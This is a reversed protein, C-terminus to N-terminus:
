ASKEKWLLAFYIVGGILGCVLCVIHLMGTSVIQLFMNSETLPYFPRVDSHMVSDLFVHSYSGFFASFFVVNWSIKLKKGPNLGIVWLGFESLWKGSVAAVVTLISAGLYTHSFGHLHGQGRIMVYLPQLDMVIQTWGFIMLSFSGGILAKILIGPGMHVPTFPM